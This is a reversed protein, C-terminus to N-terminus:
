ARDGRRGTRGRPRRKRPARHDGPEKYTAVAGRRPAATSILGDGVWVAWAPMAHPRGDPRTTCFWYNRAQQLQEVAWSWEVMGKETAPVGYGEPLLPRTRVPERPVRTESM